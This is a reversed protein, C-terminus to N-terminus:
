PRPCLSLRPHDLHLASPNVRVGLECAFGLWSSVSAHPHPASAARGLGRPPCKAAAPAPAQRRPAAWPRGPGARQGAQAPVTKRGTKDGPSPSECHRSGRLTRIGIRPPFPHAGLPPPARDAGAWGPQVSLGPARARSGWVRGCHRRRHPHPYPLRTSLDAWPCRTVGRSFQSWTKMVRDLMNRM